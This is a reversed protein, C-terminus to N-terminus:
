FTSNLLVFKFSRRHNDKKQVQTTSAKALAKMPNYYYNDDKNNSKELHTISATKIPCSQSQSSPTLNAHAKREATQSERM